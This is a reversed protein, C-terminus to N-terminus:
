TTRRCPGEGSGPGLRRQALRSRAQRTKPRPKPAPEIVTEAEDRQLPEDAAAADEVPEPQIVETPVVTARGKRTQRRAGAVTRQLERENAAMREDIEMVMGQGHTGLPFFGHVGADLYFDIIADTAKHDIAGDHKFAVPMPM